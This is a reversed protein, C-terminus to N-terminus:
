PLESLDFVPPTGPIIQLLYRVGDQTYIRPLTVVPTATTMIDGSGSGPDVTAYITFNEDCTNSIIPTVNTGSVLGIALFCAKHCEDGLWTTIADTRTILYGEFYPADEDDTNYTWGTQDTLALQNDETGPNDEWLGVRIGDYTTADFVSTDSSGPIFVPNPQRLYIRTLYVGRNLEKFTSRSGNFVVFNGASVALTIVPDAM